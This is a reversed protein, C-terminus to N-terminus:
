GLAIAMAVADNLASDAVSTGNIQVDVTSNLTGTVLLTSGDFTLNGSDELEGGTGAIVVRNDTLDEVKATTAAIGGDFDALSTFSTIGVFTSVGAVSLASSIGVEKTLTSKNTVTLNNGITVDNPLGITVANGTASTEIENSTGSISLTESDLDIAITGSDSTVDLDQATVQSDVYAKVSQQTVLATASNSAMNDEDLITTIGVLTQGTTGVSFSVTTTIGSVNLNTVSAIDGTVTLDNGITVDNPLGITVAEGTASTEIENATGSISLTDSDIDIDITGSDTTIDLDQATVQDDVYKKISQQTALATASDSAMNDEDLITTIGVLSQGSTGVNLTVTTTIGSVNLDDLETFGDVDLDGNADIAGTFTSVGTINLNEEIQVSKQTLLTSSFTSIGTFTSVGTVNLHGSNAITVQTPTVGLVYQTTHGAFLRIDEDQLNIKTTTGSDTYRRIQDSYVDAQVKVDGVFTSLGSVNLNEEIQVSKQTLLTSSFTSIGTFTSVGTVNLNTVSAIDGTVTLDNGITVDNPLGLTITQGSASTEIENSTGALTLSQSDLDVAGTGSDGAFDLDQATVQTDVYAKISQQTALAAASNSAMNDEDLITTIGVLTQGLTGIELQKVTTVGAVSLTGGLTARLSHIIETGAIDYSKGAALDFHESSTWADTSDVWNLTKDGDGSDVTIGAGDAAADNAAGKALEVNKDTVTMTTSNVTTQTGDVQLNGKIILLGTNDGVAAPDIYTIAPGTIRGTSIGISGLTTIGTVNLNEAVQVSKQALVTSSFTSVGAFTSVGTVNLNESITQNGTLGLTTGDFTLNGSDELAGSTGAIVVRNDTLDSIKASAATLDTGDFTLNGSDQLEGGAGAYTVRGSTLDEVKATTAAIGGDFDVLASFSAIGVFTSVGAVSLASSIGVEKTLTSKGTVNLGVGVALTSGDFTLNADDELEGGTGAIVVRNNTLDEVIATNATLGGNADLLGAVTAIGSVYLNNFTGIGGPPQSGKTGTYRYAIIYVNSTTIGSVDDIGNFNLVGSSYDFFWTDDNGSTGDSYIQTGGSNPDGKYVQVIYDAGFQTDIWDGKITSSPNGWTERAIFAKNNSVTTDVTMRFANATRYGEVYTSDSGPPSAPISSSDAWISSAPVVLPSAIAENPAKKADNTDTKTAGYGVKKWLYDVKKADTIAM